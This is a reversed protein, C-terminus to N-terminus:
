MKGLETKLYDIIKIEIPDVNRIQSWEFSVWDVLNILYISKEIRNSGKATAVVVADTKTKITEVSIDFRKQNRESLDNTQLFLAGYENTGGGWGVLENHNMEPIVHQWCLVKANENFQQKARIGVGDYEASSYVAITKGDLKQAIEKAEQIIQSQNNILLERASELEKLYEQKGFGLQAFINTLQVLSFALTTRPPNGGPVIVHDYGNTKCFSEMKGGSCIGIIHCNRKKAEEVAYLTEETNGSYSSGIVLTNENVFAPLTYDQTFLVPVKSDNEIWQSVIKGGIGSGGMGCIVISRIENKPQSFKAQQAINLAESLNNPFAEILEKM